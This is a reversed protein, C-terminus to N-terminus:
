SHTFQEVGVVFQEIEAVVPVIVPVSSTFIFVVFVAAWAGGALNQSIISLETASVV